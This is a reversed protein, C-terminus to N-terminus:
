IRSIRYYIEGTDSTHRRKIFIMENLRVRGDFVMMLDQGDM